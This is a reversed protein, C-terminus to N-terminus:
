NGENFKNYCVGEHRLNLKGFCKWEVTKELFLTGYRLKDLLEWM